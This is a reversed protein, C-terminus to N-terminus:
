ASPLDALWADLDSRRIRVYKGLKVRKPGQGAYIWQRFTRMPVGLIAAVDDYTLLREETAAVDYTPLRDAIATTM